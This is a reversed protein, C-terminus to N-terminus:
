TMLALLYRARFLGVIVFDLITHEYHIVKGWGTPDIFTDLTEGVPLVLQGEYLTPGDNSNGELVLDNELETFEKKKDDLPYGTITWTGEM